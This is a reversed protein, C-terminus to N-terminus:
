TDLGLKRLRSLMTKYNMDLQRSAALKNGKHEQLARKLVAAEVEAKVADWTRGALKVTVSDGVPALGGTAHSDPGLIAWREITNRLERINGPWPRDKLDTLVAEPLKMPEGNVQTGITDAFRTALPIIDSKRERLPPLALHFSGIRHYLDERFGGERIMQQLDRNTALIFRASTHRNRTEGLPCFEGTEVSRLIKAQFAPGTAGIEDLFLTGGAAQELQGTRRRTAGTFAGPVHGYLESELLGEPIAACNVAHFPGASRSSHQHIWRALMEKGSGSEGSILIPHDTMAYKAALGLVQKIEPSEAVMAEPGSGPRLRRLRLLERCRELVLELHSLDLPKPLFEHAGAKMAAVATPIDGFATMIIVLSEALSDRHERIFDIGNMGPLKQDCLIIEPVHILLPIAEEASPVALVEHDKLFTVLMDRLSDRDEIILIRTM